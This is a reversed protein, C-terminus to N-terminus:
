HPRVPCPEDARERRQKMAQAAAFAIGHPCQHDVAQPDNAGAQDKEGLDDDRAPEIGRL